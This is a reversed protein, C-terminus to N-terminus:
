KTKLVLVGDACLSDEEYGNAFLVEGEDRVPYPERDANVIVLINGGRAYRLLRPREPDIEYRLESGRLAEHARRVAILKKVKATFDAHDGSEIEDWPMTSRNFPTHLGKMAIETGYYLCPAGTMTMLITLKQLLVDQNACSETARATDHTDLFNLMARNVQEPYLSHCYNMAYMFDKATLRENKWYDNVCGTFPYNMVADYEDGSLWNLSDMWIEGLLYVDPKLEKVAARVARIFSHSIEDGVDFRIGDIDWERVWYRCIDSFYGVVEPNNTNLKPMGSWFSFSYFRGDETSFEDRVFDDSNIFFWDFYPSKRGKEKVDLWPAFQSGSHNFVADLMVRIGRRHAEAILERLDDETGFDEDIRTYDYTNYKHNSGSQFIPTMYIGSIGLECLYDLKETIGRLTGGYVDNWLPLRFDGWVRFKDDKPADKHRCFRDPMIQYWVTEGVWAPPAIVDSSNLWAYKFFQKSVADIEAKPCLKNEFLCYVEGDAEIEFYYMLRKYEPRVRATYIVQYVLERSLTMKERRGSWDPERRLEHIFPDEWILYVADADRDTRINVTVTEGDPSYCMDPTIRHYVAAFNM